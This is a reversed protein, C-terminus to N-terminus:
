KIVLELTRWFDSIIFGESQYNEKEIMTIILIGADKKGFAYVCRTWEEDKYATVAKKGQLVLDGVKKEISEVKKRYGYGVEEKTLEQIMLDILASPDMSHYEQLLLGSGLASMMVTQYLGDGLDSKIPNLSSKHKMSFFDSEFRIIEKKNLHTLLDGQKIGLSNSKDDHAPCRCSYQGGGTERVGDFRNLLDEIYM